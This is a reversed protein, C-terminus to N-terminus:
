AFAYRLFNWFFFCRQVFYVKKLFAVKAAYYTSQLFHVFNVIGM